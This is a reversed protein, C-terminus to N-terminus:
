KNTIIRFAKLKFIEDHVKVNAARESQKLQFSSINKRKDPLVITALSSELWM